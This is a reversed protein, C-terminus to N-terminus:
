EIISESFTPRLGELKAKTGAIVWGDGAEVSLVIDDVAAKERALKRMALFGSGGLSDDTTAIALNGNECWALKNFGDPISAPSVKRWSSDSCDGGASNVATRLQDLSPNAPIVAPKTTEPRTSAEATTTKAPATSQESRTGAGASGSGDSSGCAALVAVLVLGASVSIGQKM